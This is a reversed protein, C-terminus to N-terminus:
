DIAIRDLVPLGGGMLLGAPLVMILIPLFYQLLGSLFIRRSFVLEEGVRIFPSVPQQFQNFNEQFWPQLQPLNILAWMILFSLATAIGVAIQLKLFLRVPDKIRDVKGGWFWGGLALAILFIFLISPFNYATHKNFIGLLCFWLMEFGMDIFGVLFASLL